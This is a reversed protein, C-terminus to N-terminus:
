LQFFGLYKYLKGFTGPVTINKKDIVLRHLKKELEKSNSFEREKVRFEKTHHHSRGNKTTFKFKKHLMEHYMVYSLLEPRDKLIVSISLTDSGYEYSGLKNISNCWTFNPKDMMGFFHKENLDNFHQELFSDTKTKEIVLHVSKLFNEYLDQYLTPKKYGFIKVLLNQILGIKIEKSIPRWNKSMRVEISLSTKRINANFSNFKASYKIKSHYNFNKNPYLGKFAEEIIKSM